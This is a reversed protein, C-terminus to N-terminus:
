IKKTYEGREVSYAPLSIILFYKNKKGYEESSRKDISSRQNEM